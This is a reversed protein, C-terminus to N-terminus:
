KTDGIDQEGDEDGGNADVRGAELDEMEEGEGADEGPVLQYKKAQRKRELMRKHYWTSLLLAGVSGVLNALIDFPDFQRSTAASQLFESGVGGILTCIVLTFNVIRRRSTELIWYFCLTLIFFTIFHLFKDNVPVQIESLGLYAALLTFACFAGAFPARIRM